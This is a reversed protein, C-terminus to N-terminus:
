HEKNSGPKYYTKFGQVNPPEKASSLLEINLQELKDLYDLLHSLTVKDVTLHSAPCAAIMERLEERVSKM